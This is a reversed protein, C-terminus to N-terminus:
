ARVISILVAIAFAAALLIMPTVFYAPEMVDGEVPAENPGPRKM